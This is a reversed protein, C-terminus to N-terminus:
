IAFNFKIHITEARNTLINMERDNLKLALKFLIFEPGIIRLKAGSRFELVDRGSFFWM